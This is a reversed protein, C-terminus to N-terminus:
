YICHINKLVVISDLIIYVMYITYIKPPSHAALSTKRRKKRDLSGCAAKVHGHVHIHLLKKPNVGLVSFPLFFQKRDLRTSRTKNQKKHKLLIQSGYVQCRVHPGYESAQRKSAQTINWQKEDVQSEPSYRHRTSEPNHQLYRRHITVCIPLTHILRTLNGTRRTTLQVPFNFM